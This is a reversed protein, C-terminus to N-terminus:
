TLLLAAILTPLNMRLVVNPHIQTVICSQNDGNNLIVPTGHWFPNNDWAHYPITSNQRSKLDKGYVSTWEEIRDHNNPIGLFAYRLALDDLALFIHPIPDRFAFDAKLERILSIKSGISTVNVLSDLVRQLADGGDFFSLANETLNVTSYSHETDEEYTARGEYREKLFKIWGGMTVNLHTNTSMMAATRPVFVGSLRQDLSITENIINVDRYVYAPRLYCEQSIIRASDRVDKFRYTIKIGGISSDLSYIDNFVIDNNPVDSDWDILNHGEVKLSYVDTNSTLQPDLNDSSQAACFRDFGALVVTAQCEGVCIDAAAKIETGNKADAIIKRFEPQYSNRDDNRITLNWMPRVQVPVIIEPRFVDSINELKIAQQLLPGNLAFLATLISAWRLTSFSRVPKTVAAIADKSFQYENDLREITTGTLIKRWWWVTAAEEFSFRICIGTLTALISLVVTPSVKWGVASRKDVVYIVTAAAIAALTIVVIALISIWPVNHRAGAKWEGKIPVSPKKRLRNRLCLRDSSM